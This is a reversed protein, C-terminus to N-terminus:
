LLIALIVLAVVAVAIVVIAVKLKSNSKELKLLELKLHDIETGQNTAQSENEEMSLTSQQQLDRVIEELEGIQRVREQTDANLRNLTERSGAIEKGQNHLVETLLSVREELTSDGQTNRRGISSSPSSRTEQTTTGYNTYLAPM